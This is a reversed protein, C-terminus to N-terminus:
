YIIVLPFSFLPFLFLLTALLAPLVSEPGCSPFLSPTLHLWFYRVCQSCHGLSLWLCLTFSTPSVKQEWMQDRQECCKLSKNFSRIPSNFWEVYSIQGLNFPDSGRPLWTKSAPKNQLLSNSPREYIISTLSVNVWAVSIVLHLLMPLHWVTIQRGRLNHLIHIM